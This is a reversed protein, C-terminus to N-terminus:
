CMFVCVCVCVQQLSFNPITPTNSDTYFFPKRKHILLFLIVNVFILLYLPKGGLVQAEIVKFVMTIHKVFDLDPPASADVIGMALQMKELEM